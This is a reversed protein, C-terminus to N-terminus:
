SKSDNNKKPMWRGFFAKTSEKNPKIDERYERGYKHLYYPSQYKPHRRDLYYKTANFDEQKMKKLIVSEAVDNIREDGQAIAKEAEKEFDPDENKWRYYTQRSINLKECAIEVIPINKLENILKDRVRNKKM